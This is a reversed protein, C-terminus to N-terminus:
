GEILIKFVFSVQNALPNGFFYRTQLQRFLHQSIQRVLARFNDEQQPFTAVRFQSRPFHHGHEDLEPPQRYVFFM